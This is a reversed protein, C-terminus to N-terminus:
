ASDPPTKRRELAETSMRVFEVMSEFKAMSDSLTPRRRSGVTTRKEFTLNVLFPNRVARSKGSEALLSIYYVASIAM